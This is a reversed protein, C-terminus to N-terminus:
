VHQSRRAAHAARMKAKTEESMKKGYRGHAPGFKGYMPNLVGKKAESIRRRADESQAKGRNGEAIKEKHEKSLTRGTLAKSVAAGRRALLEPTLNQNIGRGKSAADRMNDLQSGVFLHSDEICYPNDCRHLVMREPPMPGHRMKYVRRSIYKTPHELCGSPQRKAEQEYVELTKRAM